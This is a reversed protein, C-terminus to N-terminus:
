QVLGIVVDLLNSLTSIVKANAQYAHQFQIMNSMEEDISVGSESQKSQNLGNLLTAQNTVDNTSKQTQVALTDVTDKLYNELTMGNKDNNVTEIGNSDTTAVASILDSRTSTATINQVDVLKNELQAVALARNGDGSGDQTNLSEHTYQDDHTETKIEMVNDLIQKNITINGANIDPEAALTSSLNNLQSQGSSNTTYQATDSNVFFPVADNNPTVSPDAVGSLVYNVTLALGKALNNLEGTYTDIDNQVSMTGQLTGESPTFLKLSSFAVTQIPSTIANGNSDLPTGLANGNKDSWLVRNNQVQNLEDSTLDVSIQVKNSPNSEDGNKYYTLTYQNPDSPNNASVIDSIYSFRKESSSDNTDILNANAVGTTDVPTLSIGNLNQNSTSLNFTSSLKDVLSDRKDLLDNPEAGSISSAMIQQNIDDIQNLNSNMQFVQNCVDTQADTKLTQLQNYTSNLANTLSVTDQAVVTRANSSSPNTSLSQWASYFTSMLTSIGTSSPENIINQIQNLYNNTSTATGNVSTQTRIQYDLFTDRIRQIQTVTVGTGVQAGTPQNISPITYPANSEMVATERSYGSTNANAINHSTVNLAEQQADLGSTATGFISMLGAM